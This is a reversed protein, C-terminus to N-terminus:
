EDQQEETQCGEEFFGLVGDKSIPDPHFKVRKNLFLYADISLTPNNKQYSIMSEIIIPPWSIQGGSAAYPADDQQMHLLTRRSGAIVDLAHSTLPERIWLVNTM